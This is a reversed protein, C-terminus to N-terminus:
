CRCQLKRVALLAARSYRGSQIQQLDADQRSRQEQLAIAQQELRSSLQQICDLLEQKEMLWDHQQRVSSEM